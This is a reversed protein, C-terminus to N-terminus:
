LQTTGPGEAPAPAIGDAFAEDVGMPADAPVDAFLNPDCRPSVAGPESSPAASVLEPAPAESAAVAAGDPLLVKNIVHIVGACTEIDATTVKAGPALQGAAAVYIGPPKMGDQRVTLTENVVTLISAGPSKLTQGTLQSIINSSPFYGQALHNLLLQM